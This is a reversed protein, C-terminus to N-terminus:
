AVRWASRTLLKCHDPLGPHGTGFYDGGVVDVTRVDNLCDFTEGGRQGLYLTVSYTGAALNLDNLRCVVHGEGSITLFEQSFDSSVLLVTIGRSDAFSLSGIVGTLKRGSAVAYSIVLEYDGGSSMPAAPRGAHDRIEFQTIRAEGNGWREGHDALDAAADGAAGVYADITERIAGRMAVRGQRLYLGTNCIRAIADLNHSVFLVARGEQRAISNLRGLCKEQFQRDGVALVEDVVLVDPELYAAVAFALRVYMGSSYRKVPTDIFQDIEAFAVIEDFKRLVERRSMGLIAGNLFINERGSLEGHFGTGVELLSALRGRVEIRGRTPATIRSLIKLLTSKGAGNRGIVGLVEGPQVEFGVEALAWFRDETAAARTPRARPRRLKLAGALFEYLTDHRPSSGAGVAYEKWLDRVQIASQM